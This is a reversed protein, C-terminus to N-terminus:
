RIGMSKSWHHRLHTVPLLMVAPVLTIKQGVRGPLCCGGQLSPFDSKLFSVSSSYCGHLIFVSFM